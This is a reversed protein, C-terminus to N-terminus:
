DLSYDYGLATEMELDLTQMMFAYDADSIDTPTDVDVSRNFRNGLRQAVPKIRLGKLPLDFHEIMWAIFGVQDIQVLEAKVVLVNCDRNLLGLYAAQKLNRLEFLNAFRKGTIPHRDYQLEAGAVHPVLEPHLEEFDSARDVISRWEARIFDSFELAQLDPHSHWPRKHMSLAWSAANRVAVVILTNDPIAVMHPVAHKWGFGETRELEVNKEVAKRVMNTGCAREGLVQFQTLPADNARHLFWGRESFHPTFDDPLMQIM